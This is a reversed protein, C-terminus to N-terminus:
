YHKCKRKKDKEDFIEKYIDVYYEFSQNGNCQIKRNQKDELHVDFEIEVLEM